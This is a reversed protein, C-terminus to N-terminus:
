HRINICNFLLTLRLSRRAPHPAAAARNQSNVKIPTPLTPELTAGGFKTARETESFSARSALSHASFSANFACTASNCFFSPCGVGCFELMGGERPCFALAALPPPLFRVLAQWGPTARHLIRILDDIRHHVGARVVWGCEGRVVLGNLLDIIPNFNWRDLRHDRLHPAALSRELTTM